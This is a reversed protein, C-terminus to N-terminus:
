FYVELTKILIEISIVYVFLKVRSALFGTKIKWQEITLMYFFYKMLNSVLM